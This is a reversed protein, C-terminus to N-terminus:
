KLNGSHHKQKINASFVFLMILVSCCAMLVVQKLIRLLVEKARIFPSAPYKPLEKAIIASAISDVVSM